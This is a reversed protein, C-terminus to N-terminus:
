KGNNGGNHNAAVDRVLDQLRTLRARDVDCSEGHELLEPWSVVVVPELGELLRADTGQAAAPAGVPDGPVGPVSGQGRGGRQVQPAGRRRLEDYAAGLDSTDKAYAEKAKEASSADKAEVQQKHARARARAKDQAAKVDHLARQYGAVDAANLAKHAYHQHIFFGAIAAIAILIWKRARPSLSGWWGAVLGADRKANFLVKAGLGILFAGM